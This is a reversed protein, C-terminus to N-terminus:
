GTTIRRLVDDKRVWHHYLAAIVHWGAFISLIAWIIGHAQEYIEGMVKDPAILTPWTFLGFYEVAHGEAQSMLLGSVPQALMLLYLGYHNFHVMAIQWRATGLPQPPVPNSWRWFLRFCVLVLVTIGLSRHIAIYQAKEASKPMDDTSLGGVILLTILVFLLWHLVKTVFGYNSFTNRWQM